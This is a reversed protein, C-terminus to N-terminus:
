FCCSAVVCFVRDMFRTLFGVTDETSSDIGVETAGMALVAAVAAAEVCIGTMFIVDEELAETAGGVTFM